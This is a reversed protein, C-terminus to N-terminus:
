STSPGAPSSETATCSTTTSVTRRVSTDASTAPAAPAGDIRERDLQPARGGFTVGLVVASRLSPMTCWLTVPLAYLADCTGAIIREIWAYWM